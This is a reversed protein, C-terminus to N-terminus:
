LLSVGSGPSYGTAPAPIRGEESSTKVLACGRRLLRGTHVQSELNWHEHNPIFLNELSTQVIQLLSSTALRTSFKCTAVHLEHIKNRMLSSLSEFPTNEISASLEDCYALLVSILKTPKLTHGSKPHRQSFFFSIGKGRIESSM